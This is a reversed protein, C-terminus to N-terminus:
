SKQHRTVIYHTIPELKRLLNKILVCNKRLLHISYFSKLAPCPDLAKKLFTHIYVRLKEWAIESYFIAHLKNQSFHIWKIDSYTHFM